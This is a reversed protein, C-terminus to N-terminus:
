KNSARLILGVVFVPWFLILWVWLWGTNYWKSSKKVQSSKEIIIKKLNEVREFFKIANEDDAIEAIYETIAIQVKDILNIVLQGAQKADAVDGLRGVAVGASAGAVVGSVISGSLSKSNMALAGAIGAVIMANTADKEAQRIEDIISVCYSAAQELVLATYTILEIEIARRNAGEVGKAKEFCYIVEEITQDGLLQFLKCKGLGTWAEVSPSKKLAAEYAQLGEDYRQAKVAMFAKDLDFDRDNNEM